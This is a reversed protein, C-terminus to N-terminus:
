QLIEFWRPFLDVQTPAPPIGSSIDSYPQRTGILSSINQGGRSIEPGETKFDRNRQVPYFLAVSLELPREPVRGRTQKWNRSVFPSLPIFLMSVQFVQGAWRVGM